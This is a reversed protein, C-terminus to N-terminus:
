GNAEKNLTAIDGKLHAIKERLDRNASLRDTAANEWREASSKWERTTRGDITSDFWQERAECELRQIVEHLRNIEAAQYDPTKRADMELRQIVARLRNNEYVRSEAAGRWEDITLGDLTMRTALEKKLSEIIDRSRAYLTSEREATEHWWKVDHGQIEAPARRAEDRERTAVSMGYRADRLTKRAFDREVRAEDRETIARSRQITLEQNAHIAEELQRVVKSYLTEEM